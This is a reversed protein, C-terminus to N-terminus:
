HRATYPSERGEVAVLSRSLTNKLSLYSKWSLKLKLLNQGKVKWDHSIFSRPMQKHVRSLPGVVPRCPCPTPETM